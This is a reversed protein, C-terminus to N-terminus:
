LVNLLEIFEFTLAAVAAVTRGKWNFWMMKKEYAILTKKM